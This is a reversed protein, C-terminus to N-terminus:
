KLVRKTAGKTTVILCPCHVPASRTMPAIISPPTLDPSHVPPIYKM